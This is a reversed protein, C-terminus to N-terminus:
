RRLESEPPRRRLHRSRDQVPATRRDAFVRAAFVMRRVDPQQRDPARRRVVSVREAVFAANWQMGLEVGGLTYSDVDFIEGTDVFRQALVNSEPKNRFRVARFETGGTVNTSNGQTPERYVYDLGFHLVQNDMSFPAFTVRGVLGLRRRGRAGYERQRGTRRVRRRRRDLAYRFFEVDIGARADHHLRVAVRTGHVDRRQRRRDSGHRVAARFQGGRVHVAQVEHVPRLADTIGSVTVFEYEVRYVWDTLFNGNISIRSRRLDTGNSLKANDRTTTPWTSSSCRASNFRRATTPPRSSSATM